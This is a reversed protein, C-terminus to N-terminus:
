DNGAITGLARYITIDIDDSIFEVHGDILVFNAGGPHESGFAGNENGWSHTVVTGQGPLENVSNYTSRMSEYVAGFAWPAWNNTNDSAKVEGIAVTKSSGDVIKKLPKRISYVFVGSSSDVGCEVKTPYGTAAVNYKGFCLGYSGLGDQNEYAAWGTGTCKSCPSESTSSPCVIFSPRSTALKVIDPSSYWKASYTPSWNFIGGTTGDKYYLTGNEWHGLNYLDAEEMYPLMMVFASARHFQKYTEASSGLDKCGCPDGLHFCGSAGPPFARKASEHNLCAIGMQKLNNVCQSRRAAERAAQVAPLLLAVLIGIIAIVVLLEVLTFGRSKTARKLFM